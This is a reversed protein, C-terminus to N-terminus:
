EADGTQLKYHKECGAEHEPGNMRPARGNQKPINTGTAQGHYVSLKGGRRPAQAGHVRVHPLPSVREKIKM